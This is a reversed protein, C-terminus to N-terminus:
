LGGPKKTRTREAKVWAIEAAYVKGEPSGAGVRKLERRLHRLLYARQIVDRQTM